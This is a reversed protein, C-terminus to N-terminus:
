LMKYVKSRNEILRVIVKKQREDVKYIVRYDGIRYRLYEHYKGQLRKINNSRYPNISIYDLAKNIKRALNEGSLKYFEFASESLEVEYM